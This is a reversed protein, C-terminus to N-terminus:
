REYRCPGFGTRSADITRQDIAVSRVGPAACVESPASTPARMARPRPSPRQRGERWASAEAHTGGLSREVADAKM